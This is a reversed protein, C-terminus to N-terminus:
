LNDKFAFSMYITPEFSKFFATLNSKAFGTLSIVLYTEIPKAIIKIRNSSCALFALVTEEKEVPM